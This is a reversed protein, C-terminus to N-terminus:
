KVEKAEMYFNRDPQIKQLKGASMKKWQETPTIWQNNDALKIKMDFGSVCNTWRYQIKKKALKCELIPIKTTRLYQDFIKSCNFGTSQNFYQEIQQANVTQHWFKENMGRLIQRFKEDDAVLQRIIHIMNGGKPYMDGSGEKNVGYPGIVPSDNRIGRRTGVLYDNAAEVGFECGTFITESYNTFSEHIWMDGLDNSTINNGFWEHGSEHVIIFDWKLGWGTGSLDRGLYGNGFKNGYAVASQHEMGLHPAQVLKYGDEYFPYPGFWHEFCKLMLPVQKFQEKAKELEYDLVWYDCDLKGKEGLYDQHWTVYHGIYPIINYNNIPNKVAWTVTVFGNGNNKSSIMKGNAVAMLSDPVTISLSAGQDPEDSQHDKCPYWVSAGLGQCAVSMWQRGKEDKTWIWGGDWPPNVAERPKGSFVIKITSTSGASLDEGFNLHYVNQERTFVLSKGKWIVSDIQMPEQFDIQMVRNSKLVKFHITNSGKITKTQYDPRVDIDYKIVDWWSREQNISGRLSDQHTFTQKGSSLLQGFSLLPSLIFLFLIKFLQTKM